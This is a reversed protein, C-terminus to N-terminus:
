RPHELRVAELLRDISAAVGALAQRPHPAKAILRGGEALTAFLLHALMDIDRGALQEEEAVARLGDRLLALTHRAEIERIVEWGLVAPGDLLLIRRVSPDLCAELFLRCGARFRRWAGNHSASGKVISRTLAQQESEVVARFVETKSEFHHYLAGRTVGAARVIDEISTDAYGHASFRARAVEILEGITARSREAQTRAMRALSASNVYM